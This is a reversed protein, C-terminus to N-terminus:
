RAILTGNMYYQTFTFMSSPGTCLDMEYISKPSVHGDVFATNIRRDHRADPQNTGSSTSIVVNEKSGDSSDVLVPFTSANRIRKSIIARVTDTSSTIVKGFSAITFNNVLAGYGWYYRKDSASITWLEGKGSIKPCSIVGSGEPLYKLYYLRGPWYYRFPVPPQAAAGAGSYLFIFEDYDNSYQLMALMSQKLNSMCSKAKATDRAKNLAPLLMAALIAIIAIVVLLEILTFGLSKCSKRSAKRM